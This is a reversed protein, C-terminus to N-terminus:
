EKKDRIEAMVLQYNNLIAGVLLNLLLFTAVVFWAVHYFTIIAEPTDIVKMQSAQVLNYRLDTWIKV